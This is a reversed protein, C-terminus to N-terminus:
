KSGGQEEDEKHLHMNGCLLHCHYFKMQLEFDNEFIEFALEPTNGDGRIISMVSSMSKHGKETSAGFIKCTWLPYGDDLLHPVFMLAFDRENFDSELFVIGGDFTAKHFKRRKLWEVHKEYSERAKKRMRSLSEETMKDM